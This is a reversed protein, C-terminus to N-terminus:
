RFRGRLLGLLAVLILFALRRPEPVTVVIDDMVFQDGGVYQYHGVGGYSSFNVQDVNLFGFEIFLPATTDLTYTNEYLLHGGAFGQVEMQLGDSWAATFYGSNLDFLNQSSIQAPGGYANFAVNNASVVANQYGSPNLPNNLGNVFNFSSWQIEGYGNPVVNNDGGPYTFLDDFGIVAQAAFTTSAMTLYLGLINIM